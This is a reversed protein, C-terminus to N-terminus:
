QMLNTEEMSSSKELLEKRKQQLSTKIIMDLIKDDTKYQFLENMQEMSMDYTKIYSGLYAYVQSKEHINEPVLPNQLIDIVQEVMEIPEVKTGNPYYELELLPYMSILNKRYFPFINKMLEDFEKLINVREGDIEKVLSDDMLVKIQDRIPRSFYDYKIFSKSGNVRFIANLFKASNRSGAIRAYIEMISTSYNQTYFGPYFKELIREKIFLLTAFSVENGSEMKSYQIAHETEHFVTDLMEYMYDMKQYPDDSNCIKNIFVENLSIYNEVAYYAGYNTEERIDFFVPIDDLGNTKLKDKAISIYAAKLSERDIEKSDQALAKKFTKVAKNLPMIEDTRGYNGNM